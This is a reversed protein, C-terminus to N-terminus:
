EVLGRYWDYQEKVTKFYVHTGNKTQASKSLVLIHPVYHTPGPSSIEKRMAPLNKMTFTYVTGESTQSVNKQIDFGKFNFEKIEAQMWSPVIIRVEQNRIDEKEM